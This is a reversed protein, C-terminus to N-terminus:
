AKSAKSRNRGRGGSRNRRNPKGASKKASAKPAAYTKSPFLVEALGTVLEDDISDVLDESSLSDAIIDGLANDWESDLEKALAPVELLHALSVKQFVLPNNRINKVLEIRGAADLASVTERMRRRACRALYAAEDEDRSMSVLLSDLDSLKEAYSENGVGIPLRTVHFGDALGRPGNFENDEDFIDVDLDNQSIISM